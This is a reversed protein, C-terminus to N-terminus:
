KLNGLVDRTATEDDMRNHWRALRDEALRDDHEDPTESLTRFSRGLRKMLFREFGKRQMARRAAHLEEPTM